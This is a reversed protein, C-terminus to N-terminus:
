EIVDDATALLRAPIELELTKATKLNIALSSKTPAQVSLDAPKLDTSDTTTM